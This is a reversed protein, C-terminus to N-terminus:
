DKPSSRNGVITHAPNLVRDRAEAFNPSCLGMNLSILEQDLMVGM